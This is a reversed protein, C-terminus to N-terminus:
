AIVADFDEIYVPLDTWWGAQFQFQQKLEDQDADPRVWTRCTHHSGPPAFAPTYLHARVLKVGNPHLHELRRTVYETMM